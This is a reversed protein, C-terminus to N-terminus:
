GAGCCCGHHQAYDMFYAHCGDGCDGCVLWDDDSDSYAEEVKVMRLIKVLPEEEMTADLDDLDVQIIRRVAKSQPWGQSAQCNARWRQDAGGKEIDPSSM